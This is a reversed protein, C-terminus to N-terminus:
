ARDPALTRRNLWYVDLKRIDIGDVLRDPMGAAWSVAAAIERVAVTHDPDTVELECRRWPGAEESDVIALKHSSWLSEAQRLRRTWRSRRFGQILLSLSAPGTVPLVGVEVSSIPFTPGEM